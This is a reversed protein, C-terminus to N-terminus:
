IRRPILDSQFSMSTIASSAVRFSGLPREPDDCLDWVDLGGDARGCYFLGRGRRVGPSACSLKATRPSKFAPSKQGFLWIHFHREACTLLHDRLLSCQQLALAPRPHDKSAWSVYARESDDESTAAWDGSLLEGDESCAMFKCRHDPILDPVDEETRRYQTMVSGSLAISWTVSGWSASVVLTRWTAGGCRAAM